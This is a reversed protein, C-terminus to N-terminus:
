NKTLRRVQVNSYEKLKWLDVYCNLQDFQRTSHRTTKRINWREGRKRTKTEGKGQAGKKRSSIVSL